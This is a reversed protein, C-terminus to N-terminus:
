KLLMDVLITIFFRSKVEGCFTWVYFSIGERFVLTLLVLKSAIYSQLFLSCDIMDAYFDNEESARCGGM